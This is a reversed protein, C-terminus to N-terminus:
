GRPSITFNYTDTVRKASTGHMIQGNVMISSDRYNYFLRQNALGKSLQIVVPYDGASTSPPILTEPSKYRDSGTPYIVFKRVPGTQETENEVVRYYGVLKIIPKSYDVDDPYKTGESTDYPALDDGYTILMLFDGSEGDRKRYYSAPDFDSGQNSSPVSDDEGSTLYSSTWESNDYYNDEGQLVNNPVNRFDQSFSEYMVFHSANRAELTMENTIARMDNNIMSKKESEYMVITSDRYFALWGAVLLGIIAMSYMMEVLTFGSAARPTDYRHSLKM